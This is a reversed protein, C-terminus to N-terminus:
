RGDLNGKREPLLEAYLRANWAAPNQACIFHACRLDRPTCSRIGAQRARRKLILRISETCLRRHTLRNGRGTIACLLPGPKDGRTKLWADLAERLGGSVHAIREDNGEGIRLTSAVTDLHEVDLRAAESSWLGCGFLIALLAADRAALPGAEACAQFLGRIDAPGLVRGPPLRRGSIALIALTHQYDYDGRDLTLATM